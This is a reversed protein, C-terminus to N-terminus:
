QLYQLGFIDIQLFDPALGYFLRQLLFQLFINLLFVLGLEAAFDGFTRLQEFGLVEPPLVDLLTMLFPILANDIVYSM